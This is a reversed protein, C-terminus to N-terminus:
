SPRQEQLVKLLERFEFPKHLVHHAGMHKAINLVADARQNLVGGSMAIVHTQGLEGRLDMLTELGEKEPMVMDTILVEPHHERFLALGEKGNSACIVEYGSRQLRRQITERLLDDDDILLVSSM